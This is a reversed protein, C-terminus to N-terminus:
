NKNLEQYKAKLINYDKSNEPSFLWGVTDELDKGIEDGTETILIRTGHRELLRTRIFEEVEYKQTLKKDNAIALFRELNKKQLDEPLQANITSQEKLLLVKEKETKNRTSVGLLTLIMTTKDSDKKTNHYILGAQDELDNIEIATATALQPDEIYFLIHYYKEAADQNKGVLPHSLAHRYRVYNDLNLPPNLQREAGPTPNEFIEGKPTEWYVLPLTPDELGIELKLGDDPIKTSLNKYFDQAAKNFEKKDDPYISTILPVLEKLEHRNLGSAVVRGFEQFYSGIVRMSMGFYSKVSPDKRAEEGFTVKRKLYVIKSNNM